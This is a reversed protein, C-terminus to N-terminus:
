SFRGDRDGAFGVSLAPLNHAQGELKQRRGFPYSFISPRILIITHSYPQIILHISFLKIATARRHRTVIKRANTVCM